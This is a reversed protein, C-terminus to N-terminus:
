RDRSKYENKIAKSSTLPITSTVMHVQGESFLKLVVCKENNRTGEYRM